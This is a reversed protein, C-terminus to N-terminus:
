AAIDSILCKTCLTENCSTVCRGCKICKSHDRIIAESSSDIEIEEEPLNFSPHEIGLSYAASQLECWGNREGRCVTTNARLFFCDIVLKQADLVKKSNTAIGNRRKSHYHMVDAFREDRSKWLVHAANGAQGTRPHYCLSPIYIGNDKATQLVTKGPEAQYEKGNINV